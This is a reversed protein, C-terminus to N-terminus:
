RRGLVRPKTVGGDSAVGESLPTSVSKNPPVDGVKIHVQLCVRLIADFGAEWSNLYLYLYQPLSSLDM